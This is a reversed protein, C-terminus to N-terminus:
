SRFLVSPSSLTLYIPNVNQSKCTERLYGKTPPYFNDFKDQKLNNKKEPFFYLKICKSLPIRELFGSFLRPKVLLNLYPRTVRFVPIKKKNPRIIQLAENLSM